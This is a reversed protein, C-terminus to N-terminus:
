AMFAPPQAGSEHAAISRVLFDLADRGQKRLTQVITMVREAFREGRESQSGFSRRRWLVFSRLEREAHNNTPEVGEHTVFNWLAERHALIDACSGSLRAIGATAARELAAEFQLQVPRMWAMFEDRSLQGDKLGHWYEFVLATYDLLERGIGGAPGDRESFSVFKRLLHAFCIQRFKMAWFGFVTARDSVLIGKLAGFLSRITDRRGNALIKYVTVSVSALTWLSLLNGARSWSTADAHKVDADQAAHEAESYASELSASARAEMNSIAGLSIDIGFLERLLQRTQRRSLHYTGTFMAVRAVLQPGFPSSPIKEADYPARTRHGCCPCQVEHRRFETIHRGGVPLELVQYRRADIDPTQPLQTGCGDCSPPFLEVFEDVQEVPELVRHAGRHGKQGGRKRKGKSKKGRKGTSSGPGDSSPPLHSNGSNRGLKEELEEIRAVLKALVADLEANKVGLEANKVGLEANKAELEANKAELEANKAELEAM